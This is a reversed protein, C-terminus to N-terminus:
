VRRHLQRDPHVGPGAGESSTTPTRRPSPPASCRRPSRPSRWPDPLGRGQGARRLLRQQRLGPRTVQAKTGWGQRRGSSSCGSRTGTATTSTACSPSRSRRPWRSRPPGPAAPRRKVAVASITAANAMQEPTFSTPRARRPRRAPDTSSSTPGRAGVGLRLRRDGVAVLLVALLARGRARRRRGVAPPRADPAAPNLRQCATRRQARGEPRHALAGRGRGNHSNRRFLM